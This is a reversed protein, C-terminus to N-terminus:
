ATAAGFRAAAEGLLRHAPQALVPDADIIAVADRRAQDLLRADRILDAVRLDTLGTQRVGYFEGPGRMALDAEAIQFGDTCECLIRLRHRGDETTPAGLLFCRGQAAGRGVRGRLQHLQTLGFNPADVVVMTTAAPVDIGVEIVTTSFLVQITGSQFHTLIAEKERADLRGHLLGTRVGALPGASLTEFQHIASALGRTESADVLPCVIYAQSGKAAQEAVYRYCDDVKSAPVRATIVPKRGPPLEEIVSIDMGGYVTIALTRPIPTATMHLVDPMGGKGALRHRQAVGFRHQEDIIALGLNDFQTKEQILAHTGVVVPIDGRALAARVPDAQRMAGTLLAVEVGLPELYQRLSLHHQTALVETPAMLATQYGGDAAAAIAHLAVVTKGCGVDGQLLRHMPRPAAMDRLIEAIAREQAPTLTFPLGKSLARSHPGSTAHTLGTEQDLRGARQALIGTQMALLEEYAFRRRAAEAHALEAPFHADRIADAAAPFGHETRLDGPIADPLPGAADLATMIWRRMMRQTIRETLRYVPVIRGTNLGDEEDAALIEYEPNKLAKGRYSEVQGTLVVRTDRRLANALFGRGFFTAGICGTADEIEIAAMSMRGRMRVHRSSVVMGAVTVRRGIEAEVIPTITRRDQYERPLHLLLDRLTHVGLNALLAARKPGIGDLREAPDDIRHEQHPTNM